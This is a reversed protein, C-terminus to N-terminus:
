WRPRSLSGGTRSPRRRASIRHLRRPSQASSTPTNEFVDARRRLSAQGDGRRDVVRSERRSDHSAPLDLPRGCTAAASTRAGARGATTDGQFSYGCRACKVLGTLLYPSRAGRGTRKPAAGTGEERPDGPVEGLTGELRHSSAANEVVVCEETERFVFEKRFIEKRDIAIQNAGGAKEVSFEHYKSKSRHGYSHLGYYVPNTLISRVSSSVWKRGRAPPCGEANLVSAV